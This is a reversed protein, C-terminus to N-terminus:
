LSEISKEYSPTNACEPQYVSPNNPLNFEAMSARANLQNIQHNLANMMYIQIGLSFIVPIILILISTIQNKM